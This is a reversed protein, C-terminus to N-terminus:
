AAHGVSHGGEEGRPVFDMIRAGRKPRGGRERYEYIRITYRFLAKVEDRNNALAAERVAQNLDEDSGIALSMVVPGDIRHGCFFIEVFYRTRAQEVLPDRDLGWGFRTQSM